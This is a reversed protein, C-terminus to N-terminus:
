KFNINMKWKKPDLKVSEKSMEMDSFLKEQIDKFILDSPYKSFFENNKHVKRNYVGLKRTESSNDKSEAESGSMHVVDKVIARHAGAGRSQMKM